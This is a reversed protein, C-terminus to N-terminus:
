VDSVLVAEIEQLKKELSFLEKVRGAGILSLRKKEEDSMKFVTMIAEAFKDAEPEVIFGADGIVEPVGGRNSGIVIAGAAMAETAVLGFPEEWLSPVLVIDVTRLRKSIDERKLPGIFNIEGEVDLRKALAELESLYDERGAKGIIELPLRLGKKKLIGIAEIAIHVGKHYSVAGFFVAKKERAFASDTDNLLEEPLGNYIVKVRDKPFGASLLENSIFHSIAIIKAEGTVPSLKFFKHIVSGGSKKKASKWLESYQHNHAHLAVKRGSEVAALLPSPTVWELNHLYIVDPRVDCIARAVMSYNRRSIAAWRLRSSIKRLEKEECVPPFCGLFPLDTGTRPMRGRKSSLVKIEHGLKELGDVIDHCLLEAGGVPFDDYFNQILLIRV